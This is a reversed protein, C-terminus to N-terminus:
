PFITTPVPVWTSLCYEPVPAGLKYLADDVTIGTRNVMGNAASLRIGQFGLVASEFITGTKGVIAVRANAINRVDTPQVSVYPELATDAANNIQREIAVQAMELKLKMEPDVTATDVAAVAAVALSLAPAVNQSTIIRVVAPPTEVILPESKITSVPAPQAPPDAQTIQTSQVTQLIEVQGGSIIVTSETQLSEDTVIDRISALPSPDPFLSEPEIAITSTSKFEQVPAVVPQPSPLLYSEDSYQQGVPKASEFSTAETVGTNSVLPMAALVILILVLWKKNKM